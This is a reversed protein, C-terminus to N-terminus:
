YLKCALGFYMMNGSVTQTSGYGIRTTGTNFSLYVSTRKYSAKIIPQIQIIQPNTYTLVSSINTINESFLTSYINFVMNVGASVKFLSHKKLQMEFMFPLLLQFSNTRSRYEGSKSSYVSDPYYTVVGNSNTSAKIEKTEYKGEGGYRAFRFRTGSIFVIDTKGISRRKERITFGVSFGPYIARPTLKMTTARNTTNGMGSFDYAFGTDNGQSFQKGALVVLGLDVENFWSIHRRPVELAPAVPAPLTTRQRSIKSVSIRTISSSDELDITTKNGEKPVPLSISEGNLIVHMTDAKTKQQGFVFPLAHLAM